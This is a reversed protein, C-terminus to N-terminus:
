KEGKELNNNLLKNFCDINKNKQKYEEIENDNLHIPISTGKARDLLRGDYIKNTKEKSINKLVSNKIHLQSYLYENNASLTVRNTKENDYELVDEQKAIDIMNSYNTCKIFLKEKTKLFNDSLKELKLNESINKLIQPTIEKINIKSKRVEDVFCKFGTSFLKPNYYELEYEKFEDIIDSLTINRRKMNRNIEDLINMARDKNRIGIENADQEVYEKIRDGIRSCVITLNETMYEINPEKLIYQLPNIDRRQIIDKLIKDKNYIKEEDNSILENEFDTDKIFESICGSLVKMRIQIKEGNGCNIDKLLEELANNIKGYNEKLRDKFKDM